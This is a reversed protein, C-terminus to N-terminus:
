WHISSCMNNVVRLKYGADTLLKIEANTLSNPTIFTYSTMGGGAINLIKEMIVELRDRNITHHYQSAIERMQIAPKIKIEEM